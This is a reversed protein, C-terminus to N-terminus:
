ETVLEWGQTKQMSHFSAIANGFHRREDKSFSLNWFDESIILPHLVERKVFRNDIEFLPSTEILDIKISKSKKVNKSKPAAEKVWGETGKLTLSQAGKKWLRGAVSQSDKVEKPSSLPTSLEEEELPIEKTPSPTHESSGSQATTAQSVSTSAKQKRM